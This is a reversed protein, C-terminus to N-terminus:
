LKMFFLSAKSHSIAEKEYPTHPIFYFFLKPHFTPTCQHHKVLTWDIKESIKHKIEEKLIRFAHSLQKIVVKTSKHSILLDICSHTTNICEM